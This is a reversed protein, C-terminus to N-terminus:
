KTVTFKYNRIIADINKLPSQFQFQQTTITTNYPRITIREYPYM